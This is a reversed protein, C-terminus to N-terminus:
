EKRMIICYHHLINSAWSSPYGYPALAAKDQIWIKEDKLIYTSSLKKAIDWALPYMRGGKKINKVVIVNYAGVKLVKYLELYIKTLEDLFRGYDNINGIDLENDSYKIDLNNKLRSTHFDRTSRQLIDWYPPSSIAFDMKPFNYSAIERSDGHTINRAFEPDRKRSLEYYKKNLEVGYGVRKTRRCAELTSGIGLFPDIVKQGEKTFFEIFDAIMTPSFTAPHEETHSDLEKEAKLDEPLANFVFWSCTFKTWKKGTLNNLSNSLSYAGETPEIILANAKEVDGSPDYLAVKDWQTLFEPPINLAKRNSYITTHKKQARNNLTIDDVPVIKKNFKYYFRTNKKRVLFLIATNQLYLHL